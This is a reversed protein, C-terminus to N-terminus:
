FPVDDMGGTGPDFGPTTEAAPPESAAQKRDSGGQSGLFLVRQAVVETTNRKNGDKDEWQRTQIRGEIFVQRGKALYQACNEAQQGWVVIRHWETREQPQGNTRDKWRETTAINFTTVPQGGATVRKEPDGGLNGILIVKNMSAM